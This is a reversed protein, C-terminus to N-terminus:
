SSDCKPRSKMRSYVGSRANPIRGRWGAPPLQSWLPVIVKAPMPPPPSSASPEWNCNSRVALALLAGPGDM